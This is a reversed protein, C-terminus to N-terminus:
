SAPWPVVSTHCSPSEWLCTSSHPRPLTNAGGNFTQSRLTLRPLVAPPTRATYVSRWQIAPVPHVVKAIRRRPEDGHRVSRHHHVPEAIGLEDEIAGEREAVAVVAALVVERLRSVAIAARRGACSRVDPLGVEDVVREPRIEGVVFDLPM